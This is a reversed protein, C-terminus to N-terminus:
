DPSSTQTFGQLGTRDCHSLSRADREAQLGGPSPDKYANQSKFHKLGLHRVTPRGERLGWRKRTKYTFKELRRVTKGPRTVVLSQSGKPTSHDQTLACNSLSKPTIPGLTEANPNKQAGAWLLCRQRQLGQYEPSTGIKPAHLHVTPVLLFTMRTHLPAQGPVWTIM